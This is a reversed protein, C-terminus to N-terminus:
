FPPPASNWDTRQYPTAIPEAPAHSRCWELDALRFRYEAETIPEADRIWVDDPHCERGALFGVLTPSRTGTMVNDPAGPEHEVARLAIAAPTVPSRAGALRVLWFGPEPRNIIRPEIM